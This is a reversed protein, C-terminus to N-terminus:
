KKKSKQWKKKPGTSRVRIQWRADGAIIMTYQNDIFTVEKASITLDAMIVFFSAFHGVVQILRYVAHNESRINLLNPHEALVGIDHVAILATGLDYRHVP